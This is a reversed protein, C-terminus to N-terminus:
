LGEIAKVIEEDKLPRVHCLSDRELEPVGKGKITEAILAHPYLNEETRNASLVNYIEEINHGNVVSTRWNFTAFKNKLPELDIINKCEGLMSRKNSDVILSLNGLRHESAFMIAEWVAGEYLEGDSVLVFVKSVSGKRKLALAIGAGVGLGHGLAGNITEFGPIRTDPIDGLFSSPQSMKQLEGRDFFGLDALIPYLSVAGHGKSVIFRDRGEWRPNSPDFKLIGGYYLAVFIEVDSLSSAVRFGSSIRSLNLTEKRTQRAKERLSQFDPTFKVLDDRTEAFNHVTTFETKMRPLEGQM